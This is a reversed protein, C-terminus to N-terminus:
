KNYNVAKFRPQNKRLALYSDEPSVRKRLNIILAKKIPILDCLFHEPQSFSCLRIILM